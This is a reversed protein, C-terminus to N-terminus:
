HSLLSTFEDQNDEELLLLDYLMFEYYLARNLYLTVTNEPTKGEGISTIKTWIDDLERLKM